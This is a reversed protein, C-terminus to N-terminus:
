NVGGRSAMEFLSSLFDELGKFSLKIAKFITASVAGLM